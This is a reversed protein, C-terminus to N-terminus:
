VTCMSCVYTSRWFLLYSGYTHLTLRYIDGCIMGM